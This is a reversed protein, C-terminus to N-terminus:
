DDFEVEYGFVRCRSEIAKKSTNKLNLFEAMDKQSTFYRSHSISMLLRHYKVGKQSVKVNRLNRM